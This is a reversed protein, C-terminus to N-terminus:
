KKKLKRKIEPIMLRMARWSAHLIADERRDGSNKLLTRKYAGSEVKAVDKRLTKAYSDRQGVEKHKEYYAVIGELRQRQKDTLKDVSNLEKRLSKRESKVSANYQDVLGGIYEQGGYKLMQKPSLGISAVSMTESKSTGGKVSPVGGDKTGGSNRGM